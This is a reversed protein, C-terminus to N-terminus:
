ITEDEYVTFTNKGKRKSEYLAKDSKKYLVDYDSGDDPTISIGISASIQLEDSSNNSVATCIERAKFEAVSINPINKLLIM